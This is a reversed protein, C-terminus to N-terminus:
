KPAAAAVAPLPVAWLRTWAPPDPDGPRACQPERGLQMFRWHRGLTDICFVARLQTEPSLDAPIPDFLKPDLDNNATGPLSSLERQEGRALGFRETTAWWLDAPNARRHSIFWCDRAPGGVNKISVRDTWQGGGVSLGRDEIVLMPAWTLDRDTRAEDALEKTATAESSGAKVAQKTYFALTLTGLAVAINTWATVDVAVM